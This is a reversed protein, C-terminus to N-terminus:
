VRLSQIRVVLRYGGSSLEWGEARRRGVMLGRDENM